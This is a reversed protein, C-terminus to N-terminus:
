WASRRRRAASAGTELTGGVSLELYEPLVPPTLGAPLTAALVDSWTAGAEVSVRDADVGQIEALASMDIVVGGRVQSRGWVSHCRGWATVPAGLPGAERIAEAVDDASQPLVVLGPTHHVLHGFDDAAATRAATDYRVEGGSRPASAIDGHM